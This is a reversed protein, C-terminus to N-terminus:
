EERESPAGSRLDRLVREMHAGDRLSPDHRFVIEPTYRLGMCLSVERKIFGKASDLGMQANRVAEEEGLISFYIKAHRLDNSLHIGTLTVGEVRPDKVRRALLEAMEKLIQDGVRVARKSSTGSM